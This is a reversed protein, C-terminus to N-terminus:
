VPQRKREVAAAEPMIFTLVQYIMNVALVAMEVMAGHSVEQIRLLVAQVVPAVVVVVAVTVQLLTLALVAQIVLVMLELTAPNDQNHLRAAKHEVQEPQTVQAAVAQVELIEQYDKLGNHEM